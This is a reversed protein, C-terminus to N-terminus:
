QITGLGTRRCWAKGTRWMHTTVSHSFALTPSEQHFYPSLGRLLLMRQRGHRRGTGPLDMSLFSVINSRPFNTLTLSDRLDRIHIVLRLWYAWLQSQLSSVWEVVSHDSNHLLKIGSPFTKRPSAATTSTSATTSATPDERAPNKPRRKLQLWRPM